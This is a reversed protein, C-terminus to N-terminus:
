LHLRGHECKGATMKDGCGIQVAWLGLLEQIQRVTKNAQRPLFILLQVQELAPGHHVQKEFVRGTGLARELQRALPQPGIHDIHARAGRGHALALGQDIRGHREIGHLWVQQDDAMGRGPGCGKQRLLDSAAHDIGPIALM